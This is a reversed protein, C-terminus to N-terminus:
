HGLIRRTVKWMSQSRVAEEVETQTVPAGQYHLVFVGGGKSSETPTTTVTGGIRVSMLASAIKNITEPDGGIGRVRVAAMRNRTGAVPADSELTTTPNAFPGPM